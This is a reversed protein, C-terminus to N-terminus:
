DFEMNGAFRITRYGGGFKRYKELDSEKVLFSEHGTDLYEIGSKLPDSKGDWTSVTTNSYDNYRMFDVAYVKEM